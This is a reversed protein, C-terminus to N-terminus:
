FPMRPRHLLGGHEASDDYRNRDIYDLLTKGESNDLDIRRIAVTVMGAGSAAHAAQMVEMSPYKGTGVILRSGLEYKGIKLRDSDQLTM